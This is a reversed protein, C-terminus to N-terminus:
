PGMDNGYRYFVHQRLLIVLYLVLSLLLDISSLYIVLEVFGIWSPESIGLERHLCTQFFVRRRLVLLLNYTKHRLYHM